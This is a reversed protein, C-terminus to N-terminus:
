KSYELLRKTVKKDGNHIRMLQGNLFAAFLLWLGYLSGFVIPLIVHVADLGEPLPPNIAVCLLFFLLTPLMVLIILWFAARLRGQRWYLVSWYKNALMHIMYFTVGMILQWSDPTAHLTFLVISATMIGYLIPWVIGFLWPPPACYIRKQKIDEDYESKFSSSSAQNIFQFYTFVAWAIIGYAIEFTFPGAM